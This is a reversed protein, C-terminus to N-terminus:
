GEKQIGEKVRRKVEALREPERHLRDRPSVDLAFALVSVTLRVVSQRVWKAKRELM